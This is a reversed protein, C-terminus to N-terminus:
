HSTSLHMLLPKGKAAGARQCNPGAQCPCNPRVEAPLFIQPDAHFPNRGGVTQSGVRSKGSCLLGGALFTSMSSLTVMQSESFAVSSLYEKIAIVELNERAWSCHDVLISTYPTARLICTPFHVYNQVPIPPTPSVAKPKGTLIIIRYLLMNYVTIIPM